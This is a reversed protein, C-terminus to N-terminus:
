KLRNEIEKFLTNELVRIVSHVEKDVLDYTRSEEPHNALHRLECLLLEIVEHFAVRKIEGNSLDKEEIWEPNIYFCAIRGRLEGWEVSSRADPNLAEYYFHVEWQLLGFYNLFYKVCDKYYNFKIKNM